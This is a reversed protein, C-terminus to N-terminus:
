SFSEPKHMYWKTTHDYKLRKSLEENVVKGLWEHRTNYEKQALKSYEHGLFQSDLQTCVLWSSLNSILPSTTQSPFQNITKSIDKYIM